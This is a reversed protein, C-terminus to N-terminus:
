KRQKTVRPEVKIPKAKKAEKRAAQVEEIFQIAKATAENIAKLQTLTTNSEDLWTYLNIFRGTATQITLDLDMDDAFLGLSKANPTYSGVLNVYSDANPFFKNFSIKKTATKKTAM